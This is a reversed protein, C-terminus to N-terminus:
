ESGQGNLHDIIDDYSIIQWLKLTRFTNMMLRKSHFVNSPQFENWTNFCGLWIFTYGKTLPFIEKVEITPHNELCQHLLSCFIILRSSYLASEDAVYSSYGAIPQKGWCLNFFFMQLSVLENNHCGFHEECQPWDLIEHVSANPYQDIRLGLWGIVGDCLM